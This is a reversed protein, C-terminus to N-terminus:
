VSLANRCDPVQGGAARPLLDKGGATFADGPASEPRAMGGDPSGAGNCGTLAMAAVLLAVRPITM